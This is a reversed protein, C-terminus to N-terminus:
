EISGGFVERGQSFQIFEETLTLYELRLKTKTM